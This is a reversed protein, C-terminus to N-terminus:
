VSVAAACTFLLTYGDAPAKAVVDNGLIGNAGAKNDIVFPQKFTKAMHDAARRAIIDTGSGAGSAVVMRVPKMPWDAGQAFGWPSIVSAAGSALVQRRSLSNLNFSSYM